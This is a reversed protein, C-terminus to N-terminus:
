PKAPQPPQSTAPAGAAEGGFDVTSETLFLDSEGTFRRYNRFETANRSCQASGRWCALVEAKVPVLFERTGLKVSGYEVVWESVDLPYDGPLNVAQMEIRLVRSADRDIWITGKYAPRISQSGIHITWHSNALEVKFDFRWATRGGIQTTGRRRFDGNTSTSLLDALTSGFEGRSMTGSLTELPKSVLKNNVRVNRYSEKGNEYVVTLSLVDLPRWDVKATDSWYRTTYQRVLYNPLSSTFENAAARAKTIQPDEMPLDLSVSPAPAAATSVTRTTAAEREARIVRAPKGRKIKPPGGDDPEVVPPPAMTTTPRAPEAAEAASAAEKPAADKMIQVTVAYLFFDGSQRVEATVLTGPKLTVSKLTEGERVFRTSKTIFIRLQRGDETELVMAKADIKQITGSFALLVGEARPERKSSGGSQGSPPGTPFPDGLPGPLQGSMAGACLVGAAMWQWFKM